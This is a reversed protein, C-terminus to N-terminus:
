YSLQQCMSVLRFLGFHLLISPSVVPWKQL